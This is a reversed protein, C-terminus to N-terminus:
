DPIYITEREKVQWTLLRNNFQYLTSRAKSKWVFEPEAYVVDLFTSVGSMLVNSINLAASALYTLPIYQAEGDFLVNSVILVGAGSYLPVDFESAGAFLVNSVLLSAAAGFVPKDFEATGAFTVGSVNLEGEAAYVPVTFTASGAFEVDSTVLQASALFVATAFVASGSFLVPQIVLESDATYIPVDFEASGAFQSSLLTFNGVGSYVPTTFVGAGAFTIDSVTLAATATYIPKDFEASGAFIIDSVTLAAAATYVPKDFEASGAFLVNSIILGATAIRPALVFRSQRLFPVHMRPHTSATAGTVTMDFKGWPDIEIAHRGYIPWYAVLNAPRIYCPRIGRALSAVEDATLAVNWIAAEAINGRFAGSSTAQRRAGITTRNLGIPIKEIAATGPSGGNCYATHSTPSAFVVCGHQWINPTYGSTSTGSTSSTGDCATAAIPDGALDGRIFMYFANRNVAAASDVISMAIQFDADSTSRFWCAMTLPAASVVAAEHELYDTAPNAFTFARSM